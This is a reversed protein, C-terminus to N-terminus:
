VTFSTSISDDLQRFLEKDGRQSERTSGLARQSERAKEKKRELQKQSGRGREGATKKPQTQRNIAM